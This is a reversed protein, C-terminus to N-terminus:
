LVSGQPAGRGTARQRSSQLPPERGKDSSHRGPEKFCAIELIRKTPTLFRENFLVITEAVECLGNNLVQTHFHQLM